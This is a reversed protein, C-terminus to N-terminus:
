SMSMRGIIALKLNDTAALDAAAGGSAYVKVSVVRTTPNYDTMQAWKGDTGWVSVGIDLVYPIGDKLKITYVGASSRVIDGATPSAFNDAAMMPQISSTASLTTTPIVPAAAGAGQVSAYFTLQDRHMTFGIPEPSRNMTM